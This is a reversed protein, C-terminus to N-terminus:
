GFKVGSAALERAIYFAIVVAICMYEHGGRGSNNCAWSPMVCRWETYVHVCYHLVIIICGIDYAWEVNNKFNQLDHM